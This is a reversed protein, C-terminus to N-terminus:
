REDRNNLGCIMGLAPTVGWMIADPPPQINSPLALAPGFPGQATFNGYAHEFLGTGKVIKGVETVHFNFASDTMDEAVFEMNLYLRGWRGFDLTWAETGQFIAENNTFSGTNAAQVDARRVDRGITLNGVGHWTDTYWLYITGSIPECSGQAQVTPALLVLAGVTLVAASVLKWLANRM